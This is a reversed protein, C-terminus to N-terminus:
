DDPPKHQRCATVFGKGGDRDEQGGVQLDAWSHGAQQLQGSEQAEEGEAQRQTFQAQQWTFPSEVPLGWAALQQLTVRQDGAAGSPLLTCGEPQQPADAAAAAGWSHLLPLQLLQEANSVPLRSHVVERVQVCVCAFVGAPLRDSTARSSLCHASYAAFPLTDTNQKLDDSRCHVWAWVGQEFQRSCQGVM